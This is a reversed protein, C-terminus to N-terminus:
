HPNSILGSCLKSSLLLEVNHSEHAGEDIFIIILKKKIKTYQQHFCLYVLM